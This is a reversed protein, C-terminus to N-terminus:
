SKRNVEEETLCEWKNIYVLHWVYVIRESCCAANPMKFMSQVASRPLQEPCMEAADEVM